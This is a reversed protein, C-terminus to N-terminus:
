LVFPLIASVSPKSHVTEPKIYYLTFCSNNQFTNKRLMTKFTRIFM